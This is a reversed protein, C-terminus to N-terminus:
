RNSPAAQESQLKDIVAQSQELTLRKPLQDSIGKLRRLNDQRVEQSRVQRWYNWDRIASTETNLDDERFNILHGLKTKAADAGSSDFEEFTMLEYSMTRLDAHVVGHRHGVIYAYFAIASIVFLAGIIAFIRKM